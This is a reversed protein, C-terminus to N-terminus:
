PVGEWGIGMWRWGISNPPKLIWVFLYPCQCCWWYKSSNSSFNRQSHFLLFIKPKSESSELRPHRSLVCCCFIWSCSLNEGSCWPDSKLIAWHSTPVRMLFGGSSWGFSLSKCIISCKPRWPSTGCLLLMFTLWIIVLLSKQCGGGSPKIFHLISPAWFSVWTHSPISSYYSIFLTEYFCDKMAM